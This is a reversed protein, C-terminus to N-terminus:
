AAGPGDNNNNSKSEYFKEVWEKFPVYLGTHNMWDTWAEYVLRFDHEPIIQNHDDRVLKLTSAKKPKKRFFNFIM